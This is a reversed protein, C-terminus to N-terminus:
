KIGPDIFEFRARRCVKLHSESRNIDFYHEFQKRLEKHELLKCALQKQEVSMQKQYDRIVPVMYNVAWVQTVYLGLDYSRVTGYLHASYVICMVIFLANCCEDRVKEPPFLKSAATQLYTIIKGPEKDDLHECYDAGFDILKIDFPQMNCVTNAPKLDYAFLGSNAIIRIYETTQRRLNCINRLVFSIDNKVLATLDSDLKQSIMYLGKRQSMNSKRVYWIDQILPAVNLNSALMSYCAERMAYDRARSDANKLPKRFVCQEQTKTNYAIFVENNAGKGISQGITFHKPVGNGSRANCLTDEDLM